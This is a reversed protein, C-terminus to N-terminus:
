VIFCTILSRNIITISHNSYQMLFFGSLHLKSNNETSVHQRIQIAVLSIVNVTYIYM